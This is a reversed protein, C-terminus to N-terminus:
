FIPESSYKMLSLALGVCISSRLLIGIPARLPVTVYTRSTACTRSPYEGCVFMTRRSPRRATKILTRLVPLAEVMSMMLLMLSFNGCIRADSGGSNFISGSLSWDTNTRAAIEPTIRSASIAPASVPRKIRSNRPLQRLVSMMVM